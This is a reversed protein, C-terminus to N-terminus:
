LKLRCFLRYCAPVFDLDKLKIVEDSRLRYVQIGDIETDCNSGGKKDLEKAYQMVEDALSVPVRITKTRGHKWKFPAGVKGENINM